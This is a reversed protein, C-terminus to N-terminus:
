AVEVVVARPPERGYHFHIKPATASPISRLALWDVKTESAIAAAAAATAASASLQNTARRTVPVIRLRAPADTATAAPLM